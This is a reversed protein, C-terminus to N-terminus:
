TCRRGRRPPSSSRRRRPPEEASPPSGPLGALSAAVGGHVVGTALTHDECHLVVPLGASRALADTRLVGASATGLGDDDSVCFAGAQKLLLMETLREGALGVHLAASNLARVRSEWEVRRVLGSVVVPRDVIPDTNPMM